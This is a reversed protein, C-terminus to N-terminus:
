PFSLSLYKKHAINTAINIAFATKGVSPRAGIIVLEGKQFGRTYDDLESYGSSIGTLFSNKGTKRREEIREDLKGLYSSLVQEPTKFGGDNQAQM